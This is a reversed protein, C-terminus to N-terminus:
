RVGGGQREEEEEEEQLEEKMMLAPCNLFSRESDGVPDLSSINPKDMWNM